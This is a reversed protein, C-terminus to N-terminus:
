FKLRIGAEAWRGPNKNDGQTYQDGNFLNHVTFFLETIARKVVHIKYNLNLDWVIDDDDANLDSALDWHIFHGFLGARFTSRDDYRLGLNYEYINGSGSENSPSLDVLALGGRFSFNYFPTTESEIEFGQRRISGSNILIDNFTPPGAGFLERAFRDHVDHRFATAKIWFYRAAATEFGAQYSWDEEPDLDPNPSLFLGGGKTVALPPITFGRAVSARFITNAGLSYTIGLSPSVFSGTIDNYDYRLGPTISWNGFAITDNAFLAWRDMDPSSTNKAPAGFSQLLQGAEQTQDDTGRFFDAGCVVTHMGPQWVLKASGGFTQEDFITKLFLDGAPGNMGSGLAENKQTSKQRFIYASANFSLDDSIGTNLNATTFFARIGGEASIDQSPFEGLKTDTKSYGLSLGLESGAPLQLRLKSYGNPNQYDRSEELGDSKQYGGYLYYGLRGSRGAIEGRYDQSNDKGYSARVAIEPRVTHGADKTIINVVGGLSSGWTSSAPGKIVEIREIIGVPIPNTEASGESLFNWPIGDLLVLVNRPESAQISLLSPAGFDHNSNVFVGTVRNLVDAVTHANMAEIEEATVVSINEAVQSIPKPHRTPSVVLDKEPYYMRLIQMDENPQEAAAQTRSAPLLALLVILLTNAAFCRFFSNM